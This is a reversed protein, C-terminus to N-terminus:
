LWHEWKLLEPSSRQPERVSVLKLLKTWNEGYGVLGPDKWSCSTEAPKHPDLIWPRPEWVETVVVVVLLASLECLEWALEVRRPKANMVQSKWLLSRQKFKLWLDKPIAAYIKVKSILELVKRIFGGSGTRLFLGAWHGQLWCFLVSNAESAFFAKNESLLISLCWNM